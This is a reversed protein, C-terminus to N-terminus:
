RVLLLRLLVLHGGSWFLAGHVHDLLPVLDASQCLHLPLLCHPPWSPRAAPCTAGGVHCGVHCGLLVTPLPYQLLLHLGNPGVVAFSLCGGAWRVQVMFPMAQKVGDPLMWTVLSNKWANEAIIEAQLTARPVHRSGPPLTSETAPM